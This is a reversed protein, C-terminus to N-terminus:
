KIQYQLEIADFRQSYKGGELSFTHSVMFRGELADTGILGLTEAIPIVVFGHPIGQPLETGGRIFFGKSLVKWLHGRHNVAQGFLVDNVFVLRAVEFTRKHPVHRRLLRLSKPRMATLVVNFFPRELTGKQKGFM